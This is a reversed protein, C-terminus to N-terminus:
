LLICQHEGLVILQASHKERVGEDEWCTYMGADSPQVSHVILNYVYTGNWVTQDVKFREHYPELMGNGTFVYKTGHFWFIATSGFDTSCNFYSTQNVKADTDRPKM